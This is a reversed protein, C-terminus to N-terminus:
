LRMFRVCVPTGVEATQGTPTLKGTGQDIKFVVLNNSRQNAAILFKGTQDIGFNRPINGQTPTHEVATLTGKRPDVSFVAISDHGRNSGYVFEGSPHVQVEATSLKATVPVDAPLTTITQLEKFVGTKKDWSLASMTCTIENIAYGYKGNPHFAFHRPGSRPALKIFPPDNPTLKGQAADFKYVILQDLGLDAAIAFRNDPSLNISHGRPGGQRKMDAVQGSHQMFSSAEKLRGTSTDVPLVAVSGGGYNAVLVNKGTKDVSVHCPGAGKSEVTNLLTLKGTARDITFGSVAGVKKGDFNEVESVSYVFRRTPHIALFSPNTVEGALGLPTLAGSGSDFRFAYIGKSKEGTYTGIYVLQDGKDTSGTQSQASRTLLALGVAPASVFHRRTM